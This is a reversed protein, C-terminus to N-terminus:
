VVGRRRFFLLLVSLLLVATAIGIQMWLEQRRRISSEVFYPNAASPTGSGPRIEWNDLDSNDLWPLLLNFTFASDTPTVEYTLSDIFANNQTFLGLTEHRKNLGFGLGGIVNYAQPHTKLFRASDQCVVLYEQAGLTV